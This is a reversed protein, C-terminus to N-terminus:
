WRVEGRDEALLGTLGRELVHGGQADVLNMPISIPGTATTASPPLAVATLPVLAALATFAVLSSLKNMGIVRTRWRAGNLNGAASNGTVSNGTTCHEHYRGGVAGPEM